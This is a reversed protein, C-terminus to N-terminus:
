KNKKEARIWLHDIRRGVSGGVRPVGVGSSVVVRGGAATGTVDHTHGNVPWRRGATRTGTLVAAVVVVVAALVQVTVAAGAPM